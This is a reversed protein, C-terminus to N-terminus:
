CTVHLKVPKLVEKLCKKKVMNYVKHVYVFLFLLRQRINFIKYNQRM